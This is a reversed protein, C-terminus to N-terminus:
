YLHPFNIRHQELGYAVVARMEEQTPNDGLAARRILYERNREDSEPSPSHPQLMPAEEVIAEVPVSDEIAQVSDDIANLAPVPPEVHTQSPTEIATDNLSRIQEGQQERRRIEDASPIDKGLAKEMLPFIINDSIADSLPEVLMQSAVGAVATVLNARPQFRVSGGKFVLQSQSPVSPASFTGSPKLSPVAKSGLVQRQEDRIATQQRSMADMMQRRSTSAEPKDIYRTIPNNQEAIRRADERGLDNFSSSKDVKLLPAQIPKNQYKVGATPKRM